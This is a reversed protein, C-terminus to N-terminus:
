VGMRYESAMEYDPNGETRKWLWMGIRLTLLNEKLM